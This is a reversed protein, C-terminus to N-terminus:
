ITRAAGPGNASVGASSSALAGRVQVAGRPHAVRTADVTTTAAGSGSGSSRGCSQSLPTREADSRWALGAALGVRGDQFGAHALDSHQPSSSERHRAIFRIRRRVGALDSGRRRRCARHPRHSPRLRGACQTIRLEGGPAAGQYRTWSRCGGHSGIRHSAWTQVHRAGQRTCGPKQQRPHGCGSHGRGRAASGLSERWAQHAHLDASPAM